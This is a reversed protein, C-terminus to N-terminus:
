NLVLQLGFSLAEDESTVTSIYSFLTDYCTFTRVFLLDMDFGTLPSDLALPAARLQHCPNLHRTLLSKELHM